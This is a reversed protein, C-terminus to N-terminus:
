SFQPISKSKRDGEYATLIKTDGVSWYYHFSKLMSVGGVQKAPIFITLEPSLDFFFDVVQEDELYFNGFLM